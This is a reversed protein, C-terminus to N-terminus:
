WPCSPHIFVGFFLRIHSMMDFSINNNRCIYIRGDMPQQKIFTGVCTGGLVKDRSGGGLATVLILLVNTGPSGRGMM